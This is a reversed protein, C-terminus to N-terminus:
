SVQILFIQYALLEPDIFIIIIIIYYITCFNSVDTRNLITLTSLVNNEVDEERANGHTCTIAVVTYNTKQLAEARLIMLIGLADDVGADTDIILKEARCSFCLNYIFTLLFLKCTSLVLEFHTSWQYFDSM